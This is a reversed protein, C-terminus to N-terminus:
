VPHAKPPASRLAELLGEIPQFRLDLEAMLAEHFEKRFVALWGADDAQQLRAFRKELLPSLRALLKRERVEIVQEMAADVAALRAMAPSAASLYGRLRERLGGISSVMAQQRALLRRQFLSFDLPTGARPKVASDEAIAQALAERVRACQAEEVEPAVRDGAPVVRASAALAESLSIADTWRIWHSLRDATASTAPAVAAPLAPARGSDSDDELRALLRILVPGTFGTPRSVQLM